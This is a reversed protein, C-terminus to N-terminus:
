LEGCDWGTFFQRIATFSIFAINLCPIDTVFPVTPLLTHEGVDRESSDSSHYIASILTISPGIILVSGVEFGNDLHWLDPSLM